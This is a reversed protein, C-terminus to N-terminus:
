TKFCKLLNWRKSIKFAVNFIKEQGDPGLLEGNAGLLPKGDLGLLEGNQGLIPKGNAGMLEGNPGLLPQGDPGLVEGKSGLRKNDSFNRYDIQNCFFVLM